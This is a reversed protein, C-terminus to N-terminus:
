YFKMKHLFNVLTESSKRFFKEFELSSILCKQGFSSSDRTNGHDVALHGISTWYLEGKYKQETSDLMKGWQGDSPKTQKTNLHKAVQNLQPPPTVHDCLTM